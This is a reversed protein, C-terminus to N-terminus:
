TLYIWYLLVGGLALRYLVFPTYRARRLWNMMIAIAMLGTVFALGASLLTEQGLQVNGSLTLEAGALVGAGLIVPISLLMSFRAAEIREMGLLRGATMTIGSRSCGPVLALVQALGIFLVHRNNLHEVRRMTMGLYDAIWLLLGFVITAWAIIEVDRL